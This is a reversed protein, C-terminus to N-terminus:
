GGAAPVPFTQHFQWAPDEPKEGLGLLGRIRYPQGLTNGPSLTLPIRIDWRDGDRRIAPEGFRVGPGPAPLIVPSADATAAAAAVPVSIRVHGADLDVSMTAGDLKELPAPVRALWPRMAAMTREDAPTAADGAGAPLSLSLTESGILCMERCVLYMLEVTFEFPADGASLSSPATVPVFIWAEEDYGYTTGEPGTIVQPRPYRLEGVTFGEPAQVNLRVPVGTDGPNMWYTHWHKAMSATIALHFTEGPRVRAVDAVLAVRAVQAIDMADEPADFGTPGAPPVVRAGASGASGASQGAADGTAPDAGALAPSAAMLGLLTLGALLPRLRPGNSPSHMM